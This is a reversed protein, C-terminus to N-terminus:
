DSYNPYDSYGFDSATYFHDTKLDTALPWNYKLRSVYDPNNIFPRGFAVMDGLGNQIDDLANGQNYGGSLILKNKFRNRIEQKLTIPMAINGMESHDVLHMFAIDIANLKDALYKFTDDIKPYDTTESAMGFPSLRISTKDKGIENAVDAVIELILRCRNKISGGYIDTRINSRSSLFQELLFGNAAHIEVGDFGADIANKAAAIFERKTLQIDEETMEEPIPYEQLQEADTWIQGTAKLASPAMIKSGEPMNLPHSARGTHMLQVFIKAEGQHVGITINGWAKVQQESFIGPIRAMGLGNPSPSTGETIILGASNRQSYYDAMISNPINNIARNRTMPAMVIRNSILLSGLNISDFLTVDNTSKGKLHTHLTVWAERSKKASYVTSALLVKMAQELLNKAM